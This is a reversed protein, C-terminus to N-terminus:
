GNKQYYQDKMYRLIIDDLKKSIKMVNEDTQLRGSHGAAQHLQARLCEIEERMELQKEAKSVLDNM